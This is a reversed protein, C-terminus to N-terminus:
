KEEFLSRRLVEPDGAVADALKEYAALELILDFLLQVDAETAARISIDNATASVAGGGRGAGAQSRAVPHRRAGGPRRRPPAPRRRRPGAGPAVRDPEASGALSDRLRRDRTEVRRRAPARRSGRPRRPRALHPRHAGRRRRDRAPGGRVGSR